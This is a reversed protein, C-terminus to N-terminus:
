RAPASCTFAMPARANSWEAGIRRSVIKRKAETVFGIVATPAIFGLIRGGDRM